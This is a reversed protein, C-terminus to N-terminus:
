KLLVLKRTSTYVSSRFQCLYVGSYVPVNSEDRGEWAIRHEGPGLQKDILSGSDRPRMYGGLFEWADHYLGNRQRIFYYKDCLIDPDGDSNLDGASAWTIRGTEGMGYGATEDSFIGSGDNMSVILGPTSSSKWVLVDLDGDGELDTVTAGTASEPLGAEDTRNEFSGGKNEYFRNTGGVFFLNTDFDSDADFVYQAELATALLEAFVPDNPDPRPPDGSVDIHDLEGVPQAFICAIAVRVAQGPMWDFPGSSIMFRVDTSQATEACEYLPDCAMMRWIESDDQPDPREDSTSRSHHLTYNVLGLEDVEDWEDTEGDGDDDIGNAASEDIEGDRDNDIGDTADGPSFLYKVGIFGPIRDFNSEDFDEDWAFAMMLPISDGRETVQWTFFSTRDDTFEIGIDMDSDLGIYAEEFTYPGNPLSESVNTLDWIFIIAHSNRGASFAMSRQEVQIGLPGLAFINRGNLDNYIGVIDQLSYLVPEGEDDRFELPWQTLDNADTSAYLRAFISGPNDTVRGTSALGLRVENAGHELYNHLQPNEPPPGSKSPIYSRLPGNGSFLLLASLVVIRTRDATM